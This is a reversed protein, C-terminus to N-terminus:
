IVFFSSYQLSYFIHIGIYIDVFPYFDYTLRDWVAFGGCVSLDSEQATHGVVGALYSIGQVFFEGVDRGVSDYVVLAAQGSGGGELGGVRM